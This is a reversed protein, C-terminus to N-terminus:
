FKNWHKLQIKKPQWQVLYATTGTGRRGLISVVVISYGLALTKSEVSHNGRCSSNVTVSGLILQYVVTRWGPFSLPENWYVMMYWFWTSYLEIWFFQICLLKGQSWLYSKCRNWCSQSSWWGLLCFKLTCLIKGKWWFCSRYWSWYFRPCDNAHGLLIDRDHM